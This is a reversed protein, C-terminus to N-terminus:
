PGHPKDCSQWITNPDTQDLPSPEFWHDIGFGLPRASSPITPILHHIIFQRAIATELTSSWVIDLEHHQCFRRLRSPFGAIAAKVVFIGRWGQQYCDELQTFTAVSEDLAIPTPYRQSLELLQNVADPPLPQELFEVTPGRDPRLTWQDCADLWQCAGDWSLGGNADLRITAAPPLHQMLQEFIALEDQPHGVGIKWKFGHLGESWPQTWARLAAAGTPLLHCVPPHSSLRKTYTGSVTASASYRHLELASEFGFQCAPYQDPIALIDQASLFPAYTRCLKLAQDLSETGFWPLPTIEGFSAQGQLDSLKLLIGQRETWEGHHTHLPIRFPRSYLRYDLHYLGHPINPNSSTTQM